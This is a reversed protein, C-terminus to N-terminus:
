QTGLTDEELYEEYTKIRKCKLCQWNNGGSASLGLDKHPVTDQFPVQTCFPCNLKKIM